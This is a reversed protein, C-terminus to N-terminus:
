NSGIGTGLYNDVNDSFRKLGPFVDGLANGIGAPDSPLNGAGTSPNGNADTAPDSQAPKTGDSAAPAADTGKGLIEQYVGWPTTAGTRHFSVWLGAIGLWTLLVGLPFAV